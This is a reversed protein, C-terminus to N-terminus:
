NKEIKNCIMSKKNGVKPSLAKHPSQVRIWIPGVWQLM